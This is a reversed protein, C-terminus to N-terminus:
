QANMYEKLVKDEELTTAEKAKLYFTNGKETERKMQLYEDPTMDKTAKKVKETESKKSNTDKVVNSKKKQLTSQRKISTRQRQM